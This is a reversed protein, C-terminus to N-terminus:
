GWCTPPYTPRLKRWPKRIGRAAPFLRGLLPRLLRELKELLGCRKMVEMVGCWLCMVGAMSFCLTVAAAAGETVAASVAEMQGTALGCLISAAVMGTWLVTMAMTM